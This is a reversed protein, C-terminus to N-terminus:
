VSFESNSWLFKHFYTVNNVSKFFIVNAKGCAFVDGNGASYVFKKEDRKFSYVSSTLKTSVHMNANTREAREDAQEMGFVSRGMFLDVFINTASLFFFIYAPRYATNNNVLCLCFSLLLCLFPVFFFFYYCECM